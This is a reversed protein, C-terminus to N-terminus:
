QAVHELLDRHGDQTFAAFSGSELLRRRLVERTDADQVVVPLVPLGSKAVRQLKTFDLQLDSGEELAKM